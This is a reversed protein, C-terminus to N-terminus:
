FLEEEIPKTSQRIYHMFFALVFVIIVVWIIYGYVSSAAIVANAISNLPASNFGLMTSATYSLTFWLSILGTFLFAMSGLDQWMSMEILNGEVDISPKNKFFHSLWFCMVTFFALATLGVASSGVEPSKCIGITQDCGYQCATTVSINTNNGNVLISFNQQINLPDVCSTYNQSLGTSMLLIMAIIVNRRM